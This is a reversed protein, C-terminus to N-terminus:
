SLCSASCLAIIIGALYGIDNATLPKFTKEKSKMLWSIITILLGVVMGIRPLINGSLLIDIM